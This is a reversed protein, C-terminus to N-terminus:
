MPPNIGRLDLESRLDTLDEECHEDEGATVARYIEVWQINLEEAPLGALPRGRDLYDRIRTLLREEIEAALRPVVARVETPRPRQARRRRPKSTRRTPLEDNAELRARLKTPLKQIRRKLSSNM